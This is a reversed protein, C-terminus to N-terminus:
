GLPPLGLSLTADLHFHSDVFPPALLYGRADITEGADAAITPEIAAIRGGVIAVDQGERGDPLTANRFILDFAMAQDVM